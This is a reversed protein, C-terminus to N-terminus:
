IDSDDSSIILDDNLINDLDDILKEGIKIDNQNDNYSILIKDIIEIQDIPRDIIIKIFNNNSQYKIFFIETMDYNEIISYKIENKCPLVSIFKKIHYIINNYTSPIIELEKKHILSLPILEFQDSGKSLNEGINIWVNKPILCSICLCHIDNSCFSYTLEM